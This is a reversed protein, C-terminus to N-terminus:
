TSVEMTLDLSRVQLEKTNDIEDESDEDPIINLARFTAQLIETLSVRNLQPCMGYGAIPLLWHFVIAM